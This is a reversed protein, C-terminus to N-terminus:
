WAWHEKEKTDIKESGHWTQRSIRSRQLYGGPFNVRKGATKILNKHNSSYWVPVNQKQDMLLKTQERKSLTQHYNGKCKWGTVEEVGKGGGVKAGLAWWSLQHIVIKNVNNVMLTSWIEERWLNYSNINWDGRSSDAWILQYTKDITWTNVLM